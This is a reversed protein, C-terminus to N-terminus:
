RHHAHPNGHHREHFVVHLLSGAVFAQFFVSGAFRHPLLIDSLLFGALTASFLGAIGLVATFRGYRPQLIWWIMLGAAIRHFVLPATIIPSETNLSSGELLAHLGLGLFGAIISLAETKPAIQHFIHEIGIPLFLGATMIGLLILIGFLEWGSHGVYHGLIQTFVLVPVLIYMCRDFIRTFRPNDHLVPYLTAGVIPAILAYFIPDM